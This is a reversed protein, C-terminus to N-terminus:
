LTKVFSDILSQNTSSVYKRCLNVLSQVVFTILSTFATHLFPANTDTPNNVDLLTYM